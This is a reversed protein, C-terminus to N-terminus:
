HVCYKCLNRWLKQYEGLEVEGVWDDGCEGGVQWLKNEPDSM